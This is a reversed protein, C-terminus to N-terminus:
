LWPSAGSLTETMGASLAKINVTMTNASVSLVAVSAVAPNGGSVLATDGLVSEVLDADEATLTITKEDGVYMIIPQPKIDSKLMKDNQGNNACQFRWYYNIGGDIFAVAIHDVTVEPKNVTILGSQAYDSFSSQGSQDYVDVNVSSISSPTAIRNGSGDVFYWEIDAINLGSRNFKVYPKYDTLQRSLLRVNAALDFNGSTNIENPFEWSVRTADADLEFGIEFDFERDFYAVTEDKYHYSPTLAETGLEKADAFMHLTGNLAIWNELNDFDAPSVKGSRSLSINANGVAGKYYPEGEVINARVIYENVKLTLDSKGITTNLNAPDYVRMPFPRVEYKEWVDGEGTVTIDWEILLHVATSGAKVGRVEFSIEGNNATLTDSNFSLPAVTVIGDDRTIVSVSKPKIVKNTGDISYIVKQLRETFNRSEGVAVPTGWDGYYGSANVFCWSYTVGDYDYRFLITDYGYGCEGVDVAGSMVGDEINARGVSINTVGSPTKKELTKSDVFSWEVEKPNGYDDRKVEVYPVFNNLQEATTVVHSDVMASLSASVLNKSPDDPFEWWVYYDSLTERIGEVGRGSSGDYKGYNYKSTYRVSVWENLSLEKDGYGAEAWFVESIDDHVLGVFMQTYPYDEGDDGTDSVPEREFFLGPVNVAQDNEFYGLGFRARTFGLRTFEATDYRPKGDILLVQSTHAKVKVKVSTDPGTTPLNGDTDTVHVEFMRVDGELFQGGKEVYFPIFTRLATKGPKKAQFKVSLISYDYAFANGDLGEGQTFKLSSHDLSLIESNGVFFLDEASARGGREYNDQDVYGNEDYEYYRLEMTAESPIKLTIEKTTGVPIELPGNSYDLEGWDAFVMLNDGGPLHKTFNWGYYSGNMTYSVNVGDLYKINDNVEITQKGSFTAYRVFQGGYYGEPGEGGNGGHIHVNVNTAGAEVPTSIDGSRIFYFEVSDALEPNSANFNVKVYPLIEDAAFGRGTSTMDEGSIDASGIIVGPSTFINYLFSKGLNEREGGYYGYGGEVPFDGVFYDVSVTSSTWNGLNPAMTLRKGPNDAAEDILTLTGYPIDKSAVTGEVRGVFHLQRSGSEQYGTLMGYFSGGDQRLIVSGDPTYNHTFGQFTFESFPATTGAWAGCPAFALVLLTLWLVFKRM